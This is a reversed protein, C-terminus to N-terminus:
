GQVLLHCPGSQHQLSASCNPLAQPMRCIHTLWSNEQVKRAHQRTVPLAEPAGEPRLEAPNAMMFREENLNILLLIGLRVYLCLKTMCGQTIDWALCLHKQVM